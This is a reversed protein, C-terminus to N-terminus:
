LFFGCLIFSFSSRGRVTSCEKGRTRWHGVFLVSATVASRTALMEPSGRRPRRHFVEDLTDGSFEDHADGSFRDHADGFFRDHADSSFQHPIKEWRRADGGGDSFVSPVDGTFCCCRQFKTAGSRYCRM